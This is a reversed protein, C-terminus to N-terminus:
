TGTKEMGAGLALAGAILVFIRADIARYAQGATISRTLVMAVAGALAAIEIGVLEFAAALVTRLMLAAGPFPVLMLFSPDKEVRELGEDDGHLVLVDGARLRTQALEQDLWGSQR